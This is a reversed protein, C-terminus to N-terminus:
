IWSKKIKISFIKVQSFGRPPSPTVVRPLPRTLHSVSSLTIHRTTSSIKTPIPSNAVPLTTSSNRFPPPSRTKQTTRRCLRRFFFTLPITCVSLSYRVEDHCVSGWGWSSRVCKTGQYIIMGYNDKDSHFSLPFPVFAPQIPVEFSQWSKGRDSTRYHKTNKSLAFAQHLALCKVAFRLLLLSFAYM